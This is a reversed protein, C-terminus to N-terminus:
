LRKIKVYKNFTIWSIIADVSLSIQMIENKTFNREKKKFNYKCKQFKNGLFLKFIDFHYDSDTFRLFISLVIVFLFFFLLVFLSGCFMCMLSFITYCSGWYSGPTFEPAGSPIDTRAGNNLSDSYSSIM